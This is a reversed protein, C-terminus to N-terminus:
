RSPPTSPAALEVLGFPTASRVSMPGIEFKGRVDSRVQYSAHRRWGQGIGDLVFRPRTGLVYPVHDELLLAGSPTKGENTLTLNLRAPQGRVVIQPSLTRVLALRYRSRGLVFATVLPLALVLVGVRTLADQGLFVACIIATIAAALFAARPRDALSAERVTSV